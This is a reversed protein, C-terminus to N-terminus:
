ADDSNLIGIIEGRALTLGKNFADSIGQDPESLWRMRSDTKAAKEIIALTGDTSGGDVLIYELDAQEQGLVSTICEELYRESNRTVTIISFQVPKM